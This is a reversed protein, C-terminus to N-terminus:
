SRSRTLEDVILRANEEDVHACDYWGKATGDYREIESFDFTEIGYRTRLTALFARTEALRTAYTTREELYRITRPRVGTLWVTVRVGHARADRILREFQALHRPRLRDSRLFQKAHGAFCEADAQDARFIGNAREAEWKPYRLYGDAEFEANLLNDEPRLRLRVAVVADHAYQTTLAQKYVDFRARAADFASGTEGLGEARALVLPLNKTFKVPLEEDMVLADVDLGVLMLSPRAGQKVAWWYIAFLDDPRAAEVAFNFFRRGTRAELSVPSIKMVRSSGLVLGEVPGRARYAQFLALKQARADYVVSPFLGTGFDGRPDIVKMLAVHALVLGCLTALFWAGVRM